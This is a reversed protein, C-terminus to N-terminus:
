DFDDQNTPGDDTIYEECASLICLLGPCCDPTKVCPSGAELCGATDDDGFSTVEIRVGKERIVITDNKRLTKCSVIGSLLMLSLVFVNLKM